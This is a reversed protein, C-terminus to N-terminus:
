RGVEMIPLGSDNDNRNGTITEYEKGIENESDAYPMTVKIINKDTDTVMLGIDKITAIVKYDPYIRELNFNGASCALSIITNVDEDLKAFYVKPTCASPVMYGDKVNYGDNRLKMALERMKEQGGSGAVRVCTECGIMTIIDNDKDINKTIDEYKLAKTFIM